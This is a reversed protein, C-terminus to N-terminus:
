TLLLVTSPLSLSLERSFFISQLSWSWEKRGGHLMAYQERPLMSKSETRSGELQEVSRLGFESNRKESNKVLLFSDRTELCPECGCRM